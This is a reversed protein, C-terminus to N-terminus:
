LSIIIPTVKVLPALSHKHIFSCVDATVCAIFLSQSGIPIFTRSHLIACPVTCCCFGIMSVYLCSYSLTSNPLMKATTIVFWSYYGSCNAAILWMIANDVLFYVHLIGMISAQILAYYISSELLLTSSPSHVRDSWVSSAHIAIVHAIGWFPVYCPFSPLFTELPTSYKFQAISSILLLTGYKLIFPPTIVASTTTAM